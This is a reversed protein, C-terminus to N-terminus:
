LQEIMARIKTARDVADFMMRKEAALRAESEVTLSGGVVVASSRLVEVAALGRQGRSPRHKAGPWV